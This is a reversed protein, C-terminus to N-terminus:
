EVLGFFKPGSWRTGTIKGAIVSLSAFREGDYALGDDVVDVVYTRGRWRRVLRNGPKLVRVSRRSGGSQGSDGIIRRADASLGGLAREQLRWAIGRALLDRTFAAPPAAKYLDRWLETLQKRNSTRLAGVQQELANSM